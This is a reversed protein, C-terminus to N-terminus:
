AVPAPGAGGHFQRAIDRSNVWIPAPRTMDSVLYFPEPPAPAHYRRVPSGRGGARTAGEASEGWWGIAIALGRFADADSGDINGEVNLLRTLATIKFADDQAV